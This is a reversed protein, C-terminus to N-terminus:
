HWRYGITTGFWRPRGYAVLNAGMLDALDFTYLKYDQDTVNNVFVTVSWREDGGTYSLRMNGTLYGNERTAPHNQIEFFTESQYNFDAQVAMTGNWLPWEYRAIGNLSLEPALVLDRKRAISPIGPFFPNPAIARSNINKAETELVSLGFLFEWGQWPKAALEFDAGYIEADTNFIFQNFRIFTLAQFDRYDYYFVNANFRARGDLLTSKFGLEYDTLVEEDFPVTGPDTTFDLAGTNFGASKTGRSIMAYVLWNENPRWDLQIKATISDNDNHALAPATSENFIFMTPMPVGLILAGLLGSEEINAYDLERKEKTFRMGAQLTWAQSLDYELQGFVALSTTDQTYDADFDLFGMGTFDLDVGADVDQKFYFLGALWRLKATEGSIQVEQSLQDIDSQLSTIAATFPGSDADRVGTRRYRDYATISKVV